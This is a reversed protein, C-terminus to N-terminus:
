ESIKVYWKGGLLRVTVCRGGHNSVQAAFLAGGLSYAWVTM